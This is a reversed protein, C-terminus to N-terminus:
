SMIRLHGISRSLSFNGAEGADPVPNEQVRANKLMKEFRFAFLSSFSCALQIRLDIEAALSSM